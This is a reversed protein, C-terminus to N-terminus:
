IPLAFSFRCGKRKFVKNQYIPSMVGIQGGHAEIVLKCFTLGLGFGKRGQGNKVHATFFKDFVLKQDLESIGMGADSVSLILYTTAPMTREIQLEPAWKDDVDDHNGDVLSLEVKVTEKEPSYKIANELLNVCVRSIRNRDASINLVELSSEFLLNISEDRAFLKVRNISERVLQIMNFKICRLLFKGNEHQYTDLFDTVMGYLQDGTQHALGIIEKQDENLPGLNEHSLLQMAKQMSLVPNGLDHTLMGVLDEKMKEARKEESVDRMVAVYGSMERNRINIRSLSMQLPTHEKGDNGVMVLARPSETSCAELLQKFSNKSANDTFLSELLRGVLDEKKCDFTKASADNVMSILGFDNTAIICDNVSNVLKEM